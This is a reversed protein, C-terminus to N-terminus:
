PYILTEMMGDSSAKGRFMVACNFPTAINGHKDVAILGGDGKLNQIKEHIVVNCAQELSLGKYSVLSAVEHAAVARIFYEGDGTCSVACVSNDAYTGSGILPSDSVRGYKKNTLGGTSTAAALNGHMDLAVAGVTGLGHAPQSNDKNEHAENWDQELEQKLSQYNEHTFFYEELQFEINHERAFAEAAPGSILVYDTQNMVTRALSVPNKVLCVNSVAGAKLTKGCMIAADLEHKGDHSFVAGRGANFLPNDELSRVAAEVADLATGSQKLVSVGAQLADHLGQHIDAEKQPNLAAQELREAGGHIVLTFKSMASLNPSQYLVAEYNVLIQKM